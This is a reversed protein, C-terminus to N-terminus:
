ANTGTILVFDIFLLWFDVRMALKLGTIDTEPVFVDAIDNVEPNELVNCHNM